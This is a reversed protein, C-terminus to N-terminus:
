ALVGGLILKIGGKKGFNTVAEGSAFDAADEEAAKM